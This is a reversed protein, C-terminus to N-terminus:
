KQAIELIAPKFVPAGAGCFIVTCLWDFTSSILKESPALKRM